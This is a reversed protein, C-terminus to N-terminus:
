YSKLLLLRLVSVLFPRDVNRRRARSGARHSCRSSRRRSMSRRAPRHDPRRAALNGPGSPIASRHVSRQATDPPGDYMEKDGDCEPLPVPRQIRLRFILTRYNTPPVNIFYVIRRSRGIWSSKRRATSNETDCKSQVEYYISHSIHFVIRLDYTRCTATRAHQFIKKSMEPWTYEWYPFFALKSIYSRLDRFQILNRMYRKWILGIRPLEAFDRVACIYEGELLIHIKKAGSPFLRHPYGM